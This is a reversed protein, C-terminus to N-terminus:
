STKKYSARIFSRTTQNKDYLYKDQGYANLKM